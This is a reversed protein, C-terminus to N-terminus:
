DQKQDADWVVVVGFLADDLGAVFLLAQYRIVVPSFAIRCEVGCGWCLDVHPALGPLDKSARKRLIVSYCNFVEFYPM